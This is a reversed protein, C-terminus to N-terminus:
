MIANTKGSQSRSESEQIRSFAERLEQVDDFPYKVGHIEQYTEHGKGAVLLVDGPQALHAATRIAERRNSLRHVRARLGHPVGAEMEDLITEPDETRPNDSTLVVLDSMSAAIEAMHPRKARDRDGGCGVVTLIRGTRHIGDLVALVNKLADPTHAYDVVTLVNPGMPHTELRGRVPKLLSLEMLVTEHPQNLQLATAYVALLNYVNFQGTLRVWLDYEPVDPARLKMRM